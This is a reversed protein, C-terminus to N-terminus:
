CRAPTGRCATARGCRAWAARTIFHQFEHTFDTRADLSRQVHAEGLVAKRVALGAEYRAQEDM